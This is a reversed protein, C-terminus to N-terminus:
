EEGPLKGTLPALRIQTRYWSNFEEPTGGARLWAAYRCYTSIALKSDLAHPLIKAYETANLWIVVERYGRDRMAAAGRKKAPKHQPPKM